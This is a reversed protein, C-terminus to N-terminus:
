TRARAGKLWTAIDHIVQPDVHGPYTYASPTALGAPSGPPVPIFPHFLNAYLKFTVRLHHALAAKWGTFDALTVQYDRAGQMIMLPIALGQAVTAPHYHQVSLWYAPPAGLLDGHRTRNAPTLAKIAKAQQTVAAVQAPTVLGRSQLYTYQSVIVDVLPRTPGAMIILGAIQPDQQAIRPAMM